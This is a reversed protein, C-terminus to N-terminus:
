HLSIVRTIKWEGNKYQWTHVFKGIHSSTGEKEQNNHFRHSGMQVAGYNHIPYVEISGKILERTVKGCINNKLSEILEKKSTTLGGKDHYFEINESFYKEFRDLKCTNYAEFLVSDLYVITDYLKKDVPEYPQPLNAQNSKTPSCASILVIIACCVVPIFNKM